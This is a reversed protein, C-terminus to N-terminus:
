QEQRRYQVERTLVVTSIISLCYTQRIVYYKAEDVVEKHLYPEIRKM